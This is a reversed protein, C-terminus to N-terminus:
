DRFPPEPVAVADVAWSKTMAGPWHRAKALANFILTSAPLPAGGLWFGHFPTIYQFNGRLARVARSM